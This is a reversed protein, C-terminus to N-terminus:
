QVDKRESDNNQVTLAIVTGRLLHGGAFEAMTMEADELGDTVNFFRFRGDPQRVFSVFHPEHGERYRFVGAFCEKAAAVAEDRGVTERFDPVHKTLYERMVRMLTPGPIRLSHMTDMELCVENWDLEEGLAHRLNYAAIWGCGNVDARMTRYRVSSFCDQDTIFGDSSFGDEPTKSVANNM